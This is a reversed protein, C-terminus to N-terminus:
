CEGRSGFKRRKRRPFQQTRKSCGPRVGVTTSSRSSVVNMADLAIGATPEPPENVTWGSFFSGRVMQSSALQRNPSATATPISIGVRGSKRPVREDGHTSPRDTLIRLPKGNRASQSGWAVTAVSSAFVAISNQRVPRAIASIWIKAPRKESRNSLRLGRITMPMASPDIQERIMGISSCKQCNNIRRM